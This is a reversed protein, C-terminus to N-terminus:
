KEKAVDKIYFMSFMLVVLVLIVALASAEGFKLSRFGKVYILYALTYTSNAPGGSTMGYIQEFAQFANITSTIFVFTTVPKLLPITINFFKQFFGAGDIEAAEYIQSPIGQLGALFIVM